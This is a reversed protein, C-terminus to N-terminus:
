GKMNPTPSTPSKHNAFLLFFLIFLSGDAPHFCCDGTVALHVTMAQLVKLLSAPNKSVWAEVAEVRMVGMFAEWERNEPYLTYLVSHIEGGLLM